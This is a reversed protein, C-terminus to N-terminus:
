IQYTSLGTHILHMLVCLKFILKFIVRQQVPLWHLEYLALTVHDCPGLGNM